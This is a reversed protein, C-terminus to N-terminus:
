FRFIPIKLFRVLSLRSRDISKHCHTVIFLVGQSKANTSSVKYNEIKLKVYKM